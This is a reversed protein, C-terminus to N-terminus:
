PRDGSSAALPATAGAKLVRRIGPATAGDAPPLGDIDFAENWVGVVATGARLVLRRAVRDVVLLEGEMRTNVLAESGDGLVQFVAPVERNGPLRFYTFRGDDFVLTPVIDASARGEAIAYSANVVAPASGLRGRVIEAPSPPPPLAAPRAAPDKPLAPPAVRLQLVPQRPGDDPVVVFRFAHVRRDTVVALNNPADARARSKPKVFISRDGTRAEICWASEPKSCDSGLAAAVDRIAEDDALLVHTLVGRRVPVNVVAGPDHFVTRLRPDAALAATDVTGAAAALACVPLLIRRSM